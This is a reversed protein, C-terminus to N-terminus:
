DFAIGIWTAKRWLVRCPRRSGDTVLIFNEPIGITSPVELKAGGDSRDKVACSFAGRGFEITGAKLIRRRAARQKM